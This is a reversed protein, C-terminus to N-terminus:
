PPEAEAGPLGAVDVQFASLGAGAVARAVADLTAFVRAGGRQRDLAERREGHRTAHAIWVVWGGEEPIAAVQRVAGAEALVKLKPVQM